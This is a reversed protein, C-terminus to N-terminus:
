HVAYRLLAAGHGGSNRVRCLSKPIGRLAARKRELTIPGSACGIRRHGLELLHKTALYGIQTQDVAVTVHNGDDTVRDVYVVPIDIDKLLEQCKVTEEADDFDLQALVIGDVPPRLFHAPVGAHDKPDGAPTASLLM